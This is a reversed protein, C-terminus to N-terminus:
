KITHFKSNNHEQEKEERRLKGKREKEDKRMLKNKRNTNM